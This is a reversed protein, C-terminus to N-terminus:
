PRLRAGLVAARRSVVDNGNREDFRRTLRDAADEFWRHLARPDTREVENEPGLSSPMRLAVTDRDQLHELLGTMSIFWRWRRFGVRSEDVWPLHRQALDLAGALDGTVVRYDLLDALEAVFDRNDRTLEYARTHYTAAREAEGSLWTPMLMECYTTHPVEACALEGSLLPEAARRAEALRDRFLHVEVQFNQECATCDSYLDVPSAKWREFYEDVREPDDDMEMTVRARNMWLPRLSYGHKRYREEMDDLTDEIQRRSIQPFASTNQVIWKYGWLVDIRTIFLGALASSEPFKEPDEDSRAVLWSFAILAKEPYGAFIAVELLALRCDYGAEIDAHEDALRTAEETVALRSAGYPLEAAEELLQRPDSV